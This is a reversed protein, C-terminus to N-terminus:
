VKIEKLSKLLDWASRTSGFESDSLNLKKKCFMEAYRITDSVGKEYAEQLADHWDTGQEEMDVDEGM